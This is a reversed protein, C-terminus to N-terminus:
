REMTVVHLLKEKKKQAASSSYISGSFQLLFFVCFTTFIKLNDPIKERGWKLFQFWLENCSLLALILKLIASVLLKPAVVFLQRLWPSFFDKEENLL